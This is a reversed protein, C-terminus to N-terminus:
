CIKFIIYYIELDMISIISHNIIFSIYICEFLICLFDIYVIHVTPVLPNFDNGKKVFTEDSWEALNENTFIYPTVSAEALIGLYNSKCIENM